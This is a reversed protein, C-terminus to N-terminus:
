IYIFGGSGGILDTAESKPTDLNLYPKANAQISQISGTMNVSDVMIIIRGGGATEQNNPTGM